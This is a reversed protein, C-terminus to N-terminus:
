EKLETIKGRNKVRANWCAMLNPMTDKKGLWRVVYREDVGLSGMLKAGTILDYQAMSIGMTIRLQPTRDRAVDMSFKLNNYREPRFARSDRMDMQIGILFEKLEISLENLSKGM